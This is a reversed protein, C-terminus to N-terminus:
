LHCVPRCDAAIFVGASTRGGSRWKRLHLRSHCQSLRRGLRGAPLQRLPCDTQHHHYVPSRGRIRIMKWIDDRWEDAEEVFFDSTMVAYVTEGPPIRYSGDRKKQIPLDFSATKVVEAPNKGISEDRRYVYCHLCGPSFKHCGHWPNWITSM